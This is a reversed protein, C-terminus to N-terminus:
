ESGAGGSILSAYAGADLLGDVASPDSPQIVCIWGEGYPDDNVSQPADELAVNVEVVEGAVPAYIDSVSKTSEVESFSDGAEVAAGVEPLQVFVVDGLADQAYDTIGMRVRGDELRAWEHDATYRLEPPVNM